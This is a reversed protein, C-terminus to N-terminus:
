KTFIFNLLKPIMFSESIIKFFEHAYYNRLTIYESIKNELKNDIIDKECCEKLLKGATMKDFKSMETAIKKDIKNLQKQRSVYNYSLINSLTQELLQAHYIFLVLYSCFEQKLIDFDNIKEKEEEFM